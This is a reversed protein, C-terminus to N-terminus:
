GGILDRFGAQLARAVPGVILVESAEPLSAEPIPSERAPIGLGECLELVVQRTIGTLIHPGQPHTVLQGDFVACVNTHSGETVIGDRVFVAEWAGAEQARQNALVNPLLSVAKIDCRTWRIDPVLLVKVGQRWTEPHAQFPAAALYVTPTADASPFAHKRVAVGRTVQMYVTADGGDLDNVAILRKAVGHLRDVAVGHIRIERLSRALRKLHAEPRFLAGDYARVVEYVGDGFLFGRDDPSIRVEEKARYEGDVYVIMGMAGTDGEQNLAL